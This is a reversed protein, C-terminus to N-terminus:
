LMGERPRLSPMNGETVTDTDALCALAKSLSGLKIYAIKVLKSICWAAVTGELLAMKYYSVDALQPMEEWFSQLVLTQSGSTTSSQGSIGLQCLSTAWQTLDLPAMQVLQSLLFHKCAIAQIRIHIYVYTCPM